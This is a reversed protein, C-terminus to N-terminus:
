RISPRGPSRAAPDLTFAGRRDLIARGFTLSSPARREMERVSAESAAYVLEAVQDLGKHAAEVAGDRAGGADPARRAM